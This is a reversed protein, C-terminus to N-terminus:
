ARRLSAKKYATLAKKAENAHNVIPKPYKTGRDGEESLIEDISIPELEPIWRKIYTCDPDFKAQQAWPNFIRFYPQADCGTSASWQWNGNNVAPDYDILARAFYKEGWRWDIHLDKVLFSAVIMRVRNHMYGTENLERMGADVIPFGTKGECWLRFRRRDYGWSIRDFKKQFAHGFVNPFFTAVSTFFDRWYLSRVLEKNKAFAWYAERPSITTFKLHSSLHTTANLAPIDRQKAYKAYSDKLLKLAASRGGPSQKVRAPLIKDYFKKDKAFRIKEKSFNRKRCPLPKAVELKSASRFYPTFLAYPKGDAKLTEEPPHLLADDFSYFSVGLKKCVAEIAKDRAISYPTYDRNLAVADVKLQQICKSVIVAPKGYFLCLRGGKKQLQKELDELSEIMFQLCRSSRYPNRGIQEPTFIFAPIVSKAKSLAFFLGTNDDLRLDRRFIFLAKQHEM